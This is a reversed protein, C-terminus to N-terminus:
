HHPSAMVAVAAAAAAVATAAAAVATAAVAADYGMPHQLNPCSHRDLLMHSQLLLSYLASRACSHTPAGGQVLLGFM